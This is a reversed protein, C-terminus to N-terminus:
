AHEYAPVFAQAALHFVWQPRFEKLLANVREKNQLDAQVYTIAERCHTLNPAPSPVRDVGIVESDGHELLADVLHSGAFGAAGTILARM